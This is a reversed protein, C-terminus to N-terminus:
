GPAKSGLLELDGDKVVAEKGALHRVGFLKIGNAEEVQVLIVRESTDRLLAYQPVEVALPKGVVTGHVAAVFIADGREVDAPVAARGQIFGRAPLSPWAKDALAPREIGFLRAVSKLLGTM